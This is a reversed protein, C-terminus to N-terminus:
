LTKFPSTDLTNVYVFLAQQVDEQCLAFLVCRWNREVVFVGSFIFLLFFNKFNHATSSSLFSLQSGQQHGSWRWRKWLFDKLFFKKKLSSIFFPCFSQTLGDNIIQISKFKFFCFFSL